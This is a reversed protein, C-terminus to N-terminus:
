STERQEPTLAKKRKILEERLEKLRPGYTDDRCSEAYESAYLEYDTMSKAPKEM